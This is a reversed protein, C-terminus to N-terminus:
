QNTSQSLKTSVAAYIEPFFLGGLFCTLGVTAFTTKYYYRYFPLEQEHEKILLQKVDEVRVVQPGTQKATAVSDYNVVHTVQEKAARVSAYDVVTMPTVALLTTGAKIDTPIIAAKSAELREARAALADSSSVKKMAHINGVCMLAVLASIMLSKM